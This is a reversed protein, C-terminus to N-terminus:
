DTPSQEEASTEEWVAIPKNVVSVLLPVQTEWTTSSSFQRKFTKKHSRLCVM